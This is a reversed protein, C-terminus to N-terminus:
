EVVVCRRNAVAGNSEIRVHYIGSSLGRASFRVEHAGASQEGDALRAVERGALDFVLLRVRGAQPLRYQILTSSSFPNPAVASLELRAVPPAGDEVGVTATFGAQQLGRQIAPNSMFRNWVAQTRYNEIMIAIPGQDIGIVDTDWWPTGTLNFADRFGYPGWLQSKYHNYMYHAVPITVEPAFPISSLPATPTITGNDNQNPPAGRAVYGGPVDSATLGWLSDAYGVFGGPNAVSYAHQALTARRSNEFYTIGKDRMYADAIYRYDIWCHSYQHGFLPPFNVYSYGYHTQWQYGSTWATWAAPLVSRSPVPAGLALVYLIMAENYGIWQGFGSFGSGPKWGMLIGPNFNQAFHWDARTYLSDAYARILVEDPDSTSFFQRADLIGAFLLASDITSLEPNWNLPDYRTATNMDLFHYFLGRFGITGSFASSQTGSMFTSLTTLVRAKAAERTVWGHDVGICITSLGFGVAAISAPSGPASRDPILGNAPNATSWMYNFATYQLSDLLADTTLARAPSACALLLALIM